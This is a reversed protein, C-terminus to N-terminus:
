RGFEYWNRSLRGIRACFVGIEEQAAPFNEFFIVSLKVKLSLVCINTNNTLKLDFSLLFIYVGKLGKYLRFWTLWSISFIM